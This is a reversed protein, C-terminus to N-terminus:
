EEDVEALVDVVGVLTGSVRLRVELIEGVSGVLLQRRRGVVIGLVRWKLAAEEPGVRKLEGLIEEFAVAVGREVKADLTQLVECARRVEGLMAFIRMLPSDRSQTRAM